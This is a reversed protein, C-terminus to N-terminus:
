LSEGMGEFGYYNKKKRLYLICKFTMPNIYHLNWRNKFLPIYPLGPGALCADTMQPWTVAAGKPYPKNM